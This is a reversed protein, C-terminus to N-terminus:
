DYSYITGKIKLYLICTGIVKNSEEIVWPEGDLALGYRKDLFYIVKLLM